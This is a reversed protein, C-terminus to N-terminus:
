KPQDFLEPSGARRRRALERRERIRRKREKRFKCM